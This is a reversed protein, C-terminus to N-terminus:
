SLSSVPELRIAHEYILNAALNFLILDCGCVFYEDSLWGPVPAQGTQLTYIVASASFPVDGVIFSLVTKTM